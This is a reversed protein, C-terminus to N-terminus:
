TLILRGILIFPNAYNTLYNGSKYKRLVKRLPIVFKNNSACKNVINRFAEIDDHLHIVLNKKSTDFNSLLVCLHFNILQM